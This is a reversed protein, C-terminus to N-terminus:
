LHFYFGFSLLNEVQLKHSVEEQYFLRTQLNTRLYRNIRLGFINKVTMDVPKMYNRFLQIECNWHLKPLLDRDVQLQFAWGYELAYQKGEPVGYFREVGRIKWIQRNRVYTLRAATIGLNLKGYGPVIFLFGPSLTWVLPTLFGANLLKVKTGKADTSQEYRNFIRTSVISTINLSVAHVPSFELRTELTNEDIHFRSISDFFYQVGLNHVFVSTLRFTRHDELISNYRLGQLLFISNYQSNEGGNFFLALSGSVSYQLDQTIRLSVNSNGMGPRVGLDGVVSDRWILEQGASEAPSLCLCLQGLLVVIIWVRL